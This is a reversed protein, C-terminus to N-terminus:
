DETLMTASEVQEVTREITICVHTIIKVAM